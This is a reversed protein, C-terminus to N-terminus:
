RASLQKLNQQRRSQGLKRASFALTKLFALLSVFAAIISVLMTFSVIRGSSLALYGTVLAVVAAVLTLILSILAKSDLRRNQHRNIASRTSTNAVARLAKLGGTAEPAVARPVFESPDLLPQTMDAEPEPEPEVTVESVVPEPKPAAAPQPTSQSAAPSGGVRKMLQAMYDQIDDEDEGSSLPTQAAFDNLVPEPAPQSPSEFGGLDSPDEDMTHGYQALIAATDIPAASEPQSYTVEEPTSPEVYEQEQQLYSPDEYSQADQETQPQDYSSEAYAQQDYSPEAYSTQDFAPQESYAPEGASTEAYGGPQAEESSEFVAQDYQESEPYAQGSEGVQDAASQGYIEQEPFEQESTEPESEIGLDDRLRNLMEMASEPSTGQTSESEGFMLTQSGVNSEVQSDTEQSDFDDMTMTQTPAVFTDEQEYGGQEEVPQPHSSEEYTQEYGPSPPAFSPQSFAAAGGDISGPEKGALKARLAALENDKEQNAMHAAQLDTEMQQQQAEWKNCYEEAQDMQHRMTEVERTLQDYEDQLSQKADLKRQLQAVQDELEEQDNEESEFDRLKTRLAELEGSQESLQSAATEKAAVESEWQSTLTDCQSQLEEMKAVLQQNTSELSELQEQFQEQVEQSNTNQIANLSQEFEGLQAAWDQLRAEEADHQQQWQIQKLELKSNAEDVDAQQKELQAAQRDIEARKEDIESQRLALEESAHQNVRDDSEAADFPKSDTTEDLVEFEIPGISLLDGPQLRTDEFVEGNVLTDASMRRVVTGTEGRLVLCHIGHVGPCSLRLTANEASGITCKSSNVRVVKGHHQGGRFRLRLAALTAPTTPSPKIAQPDSPQTM